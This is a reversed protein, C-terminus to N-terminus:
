PNRKRKSSTTADEPVIFENWKPVYEFQNTVIEELEDISSVHKALEALCRYRCEVYRILWDPWNVIPACVYHSKHIDGPNESVKEMVVEERKKKKDIRYQWFILRLKGDVKEKRYWLVEADFPPGAFMIRRGVYIPGKTPPWPLGGEALIEGAVMRAKPDDCLVVSLHIDAFPYYVRMERMNAMIWGKGCFNHYEVVRWKGVLWYLDDIVRNTTYSIPIPDLDPRFFVEKLSPLKRLPSHVKQSLAPPQSARELWSVITCGLVFGVLSLATLKRKM